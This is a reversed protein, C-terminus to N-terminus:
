APLEDAVPTRAVEPHPANATAFAAWSVIATYTVAGATIIWLGAEFDHRAALLALPTFVILSVARAVPM